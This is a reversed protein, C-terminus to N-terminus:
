RPLTTKNFKQADQHGGQLSSIGDMSRNYWDFIFRGKMTRPILWPSVESFANALKPKNLGMGVKGM